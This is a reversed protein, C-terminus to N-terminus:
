PTPSFVPLPRDAAGDAGQGSISSRRMQLYSDRIYSYRDLSAQEVIADVPLLRARTDVLRVGLLSNRVPVDRYYWLPDAIGDVILGATDRATRPGLIPWFVYAGEDAGWVGMTQGFDKSHKELGVESAIDFAGGIGVTTNVFFRGLDSFADEVHGQMLNNAAVWLEGLNGFFNGTAAKVPLPTAEDYVVAAPRLVAADLVDNVAFMARNFDEAPDNPNPASATTTTACGSLALLSAAAVFAALKRLNGIFVPKM